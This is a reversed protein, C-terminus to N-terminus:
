DDTFYHPYITQLNEMDYLIQNVHQGVLKQAAVIDHRAIADLLLGHETLTFTWDAVFAPTNRDNLTTLKLYTIRQHDAQLAHFADWALLQGCATYLMRHMRADEQSLQSLQQAEFYQHQLQLSERLAALTEPPLNQCAQTVVASELANRMFLFQQITKSSIRSVASGKQPFVDVLGENALKFLADRVPKRSTAFQAALANESLAEGPLREFQLIQRHLTDYISIWAFENTQTRMKPEKM